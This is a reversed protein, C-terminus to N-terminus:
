EHAQEGEPVNIIFPAQSPMKLLSDKNNKLARLVNSERSKETLESTSSLAKYKADQLQGQLRDIELIDRQCSYRNSVYIVMFFAILIFLWIQRRILATNLIDGGLIKRLSLTRSQPGEDENAQEKLAEAFTVLDDDDTAAPEADPADGDGEKKRAAPSSKKEEAAAGEPTEPTIINLDVDKKKM